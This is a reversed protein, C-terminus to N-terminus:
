SVEAELEASIKPNLPEVRKKESRCLVAGSAPTGVVRVVLGARSVKKILRVSDSNFAVALSMASPCTKHVALPGIPSVKMKERRAGTGRGSGDVVARAPM